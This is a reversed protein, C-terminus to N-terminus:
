LVCDSSAKNRLCKEVAVQISDPIVEGNVVYFMLLKFVPSLHEDVNLEFEFTEIQPDEIDTGDIDFRMQEKIASENAEIVFRFISVHYNRSGIVYRGETTETLACAVPETASRCLDARDGDIGHRFLGCLRHESESPNSLALEHQPAGPKQVQRAAPSAPM